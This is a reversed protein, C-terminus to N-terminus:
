SDCIDVFAVGQQANQRAPCRPDVWMGQARRCLVAVCTCSAQGIFGDFFIPARSADIAAREISAEGYVKRMPIM